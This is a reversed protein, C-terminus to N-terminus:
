LDDKSDNLWTGFLHYAWLAFVLCLGVVRRMFGFFVYGAADNGACRNLSYIPPITLELM